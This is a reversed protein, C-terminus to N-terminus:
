IQANNCLDKIIADSRWDTFHLCLWMGCDVATWWPHDNLSMSNLVVSKVFSEDSQM